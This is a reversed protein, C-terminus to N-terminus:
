PAAPGTKEDTVGWAYATIRWEGSAKELVFAWAGFEEFRKGRDVGRWTTPLTFYVRNGTREFDHASGFEVTLEHLKGEAVHQRFGADWLAAANKGRFIYPAFNEIIVLGNEVFVAPTAAGDVHAMYHVLATIPVLMAEDPMVSARVRTAPAQLVLVFLACMWTGIRQHVPPLGVWPRSTPSSKPSSLIPM